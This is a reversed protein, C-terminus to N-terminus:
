CDDWGRKVILELLDGNNVGEVLLESWGIEM